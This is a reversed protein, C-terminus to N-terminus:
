RSSVSSRAHDSDICVGSPPYPTICHRSRMAALRRSALMDSESVVGSGSERLLATLVAYGTNPLPAPVAPESQIVSVWRLEPRATM